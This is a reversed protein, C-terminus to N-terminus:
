DQLEDEGVFIVAKMKSTDLNNGSFKYMANLEKTANLITNALTQNLVNTKELQVRSMDLLFRLENESDKFKWDWQQLDLVYLESSRMRAWTKFAMMDPRGLMNEAQKRMDALLLPDAIVWTNSIGRKCVEDWARWPPMGCIQFCALYVEAETLGLENAKMWAETWFTESAATSQYEFAERMDM